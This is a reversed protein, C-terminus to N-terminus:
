GGIAIRYQEILRSWAKSYASLMKSFHQEATDATKSSLNFLEKQTKANYVSGFDTYKSFDAQPITPILIADNARYIVDKVYQTRAFGLEEETATYGYPLLPLGDINKQAIIQAKDTALFRLFKEAGAVNKAAKPIVCTGTVVAGIFKRAEAIRAIDEDTADPKTQTVGDVYDIVVRLEADNEISPTQKIIASAVPMKMCRMEQKEGLSEKDALLWALENELWQGSYLFAARSENEGFPFGVMVANADMFEMSDCDSHAYGSEKLGIKKCLEYYDKHEQEYASIVTPADEDFVYSNTAADYYKGAYYNKYSEYGLLQAFWVHRGYALYDNNDAYGTVYLYKNQTKLADGMEFFEDTTRPLVYGNPFSSDLLTKNYAWGYGWHKVYPYMYSKGERNLYIDYLNKDVKDKILKDEGLATQEFIHSLDLTYKELGEMHTELMYIDDSSMGSIIKDREGSAMVTPKIDIYTDTDYNIMYERAVEKLWDLGYGSNFYTVSVKNPRDKFEDLSDTSGCGTFLALSLVLVMLMSVLKKM